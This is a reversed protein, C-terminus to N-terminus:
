NSMPKVNWQQFRAELLKCTVSTTHIPTLPVHPGFHAWCSAWLPGLVLFAGELADIAVKPGGQLGQLFAEMSSEGKSSNRWPSIGGHLFEELSSNGWPPLGGHLLGGHLLGGHLIERLIVGPPGFTAMVGPLRRVQRNRELPSCSIPTLPEGSRRLKKGPARPLPPGDGPSITKKQRGKKQEGKKQEGKDAFRRNRINLGLM